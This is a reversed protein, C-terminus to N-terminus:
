RQLPLVAEALWALEDAADVPDAGAAGDGAVPRLVFKSLGAELHRALHDDLGDAGVPLLNEVRRGPYLAEMQRRSAEPIGHRAYPLSIGFHEPDLERGLEAARDLITTRAEAATEPGIGATLWGDGLRAVRDLAKPGHGGFWIELPDQVPRPEVSVDDVDVRESHHTVQEGSWWRRLLDVIEEMVPGRDGRGTGLAAREGPQDVGPVVTVLLRGASLRDIQALQRALVMPNRGFPVLNVGLHVRETAVALAALTVVPDAAAMMPLDSLWISDFGLEEAHRVYGVPDTASPPVSVAFRIKYPSAATAEAATM